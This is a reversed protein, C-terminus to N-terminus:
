LVEYAMLVEDFYRDDTKLARREIGYAVFGCKEYVARAAANATLCSLGVIEIGDAAAQELVARTLATGVGHGRQDRRVYMGWLTGRHKTKAGTQRLLGAMGVCAGAADFAGWAACQELRDRFQADTRTVEAALTSGFADPDETLAELRIARFTAVDADPSLRRISHSV